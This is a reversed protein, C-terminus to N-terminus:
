RFKAIESIELQCTPREFTRKNRGTARNYALAVDTACWVGPM